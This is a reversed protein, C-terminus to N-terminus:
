RGLGAGFTDYPYGAVDITDKVGNLISMKVGYYLKYKTYTCLSNRLNKILFSHNSMDAAMKYYEYLWEDGRVNVKRCIHM